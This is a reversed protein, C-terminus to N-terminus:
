FDIYVRKNINNQYLSNYETKRPLDWNDLVNILESIIFKATKVPVNQGIKAYNNTINGYLEFDFPMGMFHLYERITYIREENLHLLNPMSKFQVSPITDTFYQMDSGYYNLGLSTKYKIHEYYRISKKKHEEPYDGNRIFDILEDLLNNNRIYKIFSKNITDKWNDGLKSKIFDLMYWNHMPTELSIMQTANKPIQKLYEKLPITNSYYSILSPNQILDNDNNHKIFIIFTRPRRQCNDHLVSDTKYFLISYKNKVAIDDFWSRLEDGRSGMLTPANEFVFIKPKIISLVYNTIWQMNCNRSKKTDDKASTAMSLGSCVPLSAVIDLNDYNPIAENDDLTININTKNVDIDFMDNHIVYYPVSRNKKNLYQLLNYENGVNTMEKKDKSYNVKDLGEFSMIWEAPHGIAEECGLYFGGTLPQIFAWRIDNM